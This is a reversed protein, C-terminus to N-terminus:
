TRPVSSSTLARWIGEQIRKLPACLGQRRPPPSGGTQAHGSAAITEEGAAMPRDQYYLMSPRGAAVGQM